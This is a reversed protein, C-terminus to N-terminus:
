YPGFDRLSSSSYEIIFRFCLLIRAKTPMALLYVGLKLLFFSSRQTERRKWLCLLTSELYMLFSIWTSTTSIVNPKHFKKM